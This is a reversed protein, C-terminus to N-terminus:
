PSVSSLVSSTIQTAARKRACRRELGERWLALGPTVVLEMTLAGLLALTPLQLLALGYLRALGGVLVLCALLRFRVGESEIRRLTSLFGMGVAFMLGCLYRAHSDATVSPPTRADLMELGQLVGWLGSLIPVLAAVAVVIQLLRREGVAFL